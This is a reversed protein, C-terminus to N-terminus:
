LHAALLRFDFSRVAGIGRSAGTVMVVKGKQSLEPRSPDIAAYVDRYVFSTFANNVTFGHPPSYDPAM